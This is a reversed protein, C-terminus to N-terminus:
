KAGLIWLCKELFIEYAFIISIFREERLDYSKGNLKNEAIESGQPHIRIVEDRLRVECTTPLDHNHFKFITQM